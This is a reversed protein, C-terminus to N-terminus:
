QIVHTFIYIYLICMQYLFCTFLIFHFVISWSHFVHFIHVGPWHQMAIYSQFTDTNEKPLNTWEGKGLALCLSVVTVDVEPLMALVPQIVGSCAQLWAHQMYRHKFDFLVLGSSIVKWDEMHIYYIYYMLISHWFIVFGHQIAPLEGPFNQM